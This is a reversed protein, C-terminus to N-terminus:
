KFLRGIKDEERTRGGQEIGGTTRRRGKVGM